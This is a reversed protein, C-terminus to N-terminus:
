TKIKVSRQPAVFPKIFGKSAGSLLTIIFILKIEICSESTCPVNLILVYDYEKVPVVSLWNLSSTKRNADTCQKSQKDM